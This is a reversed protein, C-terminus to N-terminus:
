VIQIDDATLTNLQTALQQGGDFALVFADGDEAGFQDLVQQATLDGEWLGSDLQLIDGDGGPASGSFDQVTATGSNTAFVFTDAGAGGNMLDDDQIAVLMDDGDGGFLADAGSGGYLDDDGDGGYVTDNGSGAWVTDNGSGGGVRDNGLGGYVIDNGADGWVDDNGAGGGVTDDGSRGRVLDAGGMGWVEDADDGGDVLDDGSGGYALDDGAGAEVVDDGAGGGAVDDGARTQIFDDGGAGWAEDTGNGSDLEDNGAGGYLTDSGIGTEFSDDGGAGGLVSGAEGVVELTDDTDGFFKVVEIGITEPSEIRTLSPIDILSFPTEPAFPGSDVAGIGTITAALENADDDDELDPFPDGDLYFFSRLDGPHTFSLAQTTKGDWAIEIVETTLIEAGISMEASVDDGFDAEPLGDENSDDVLDYSVIADETVTVDVGIPALGEVGDDTTAWVFGELSFVTM